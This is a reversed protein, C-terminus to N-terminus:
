QRGSAPRPPHRCAAASWGTRRSAAPASRVRGPPRHRRRRPRRAPPAPVAVPACEGGGLAATQQQLHTPQHQRLGVFQRAQFRQVHALREPLTAGVGHRQRAVQLEVATGGVLHVALGQGEGVAVGRERQTLRVADGRVDHGPVVRHLDDAAADARRQRHAIGAHEFRGLFGAERRQGERADGFRRSQRGARQVHHRPQALFGARRQRRVGAHPVDRECARHRHARQDLGRRRLIGHRHRQLEAALARLQDEGVGVEIGGQGEQDVGADLIGPLGARRRRADEHLARHEVGHHLAHGLAVACQAHPRRQVVGVHAGDDRPRCCSIM